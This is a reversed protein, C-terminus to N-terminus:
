FLGAGGTVRLDQGTVYSSEDGILFCIAEAVDEPRAIRGLPIRSAKAYLEADSAHARPLPTDTVGPSVTNVRVGERAVELALTRALGLLGGKSAAYHGATASGTRAISSSVLVISGGQGRMFPLAAQCALFPGKLNIDLHRDFTDEDLELYPKREIIGACAVLGVIRGKEAQQAITARQLDGDRVDCQAFTFGASSSLEGSRGPSRDIGLVAYDAALLRRATEFGIGSGVGTVVVCGKAGVSSL